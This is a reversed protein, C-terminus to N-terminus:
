MVFEREPSLVSTFDGHKAAEGLINSFDKALERVDPGSLEFKEINCGETAEKFATSRLDALHITQNESFIPAVWRQSWLVVPLSAM